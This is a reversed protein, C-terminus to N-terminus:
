FLRLSTVLAIIFFGIPLAAYPIAMPIELAISRQDSGVMGIVIGASAWAVALAVAVMVIGTLSDFWRKIGPPALHEFADMRLHANEYSVLVAGIIVCWVQIFVMGEEAWFIPRSFAYRGVMNALNIAVATFMLSGLLVKILHQLRSM